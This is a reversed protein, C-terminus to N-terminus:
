GGAIWRPPGDPADARRAEGTREFLELHALLTHALGDDEAPTWTRLEDAIAANLEALSAPADLARLRERLARDVADAFAGSADVFAGAEEEHMPAYHATLLLTPALARIRAVTARYADAGVYLPPALPAGSADPVSAGLIADAAVLVGTEPDLVGVHGPTHGPLLVLEVTRDAGLAWRQPGDLARDVPARGAQEYAWTV